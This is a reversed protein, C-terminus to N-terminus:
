VKRITMQEILRLASPGTVVPLRGGQLSGVMGDRIITRWQGLDLGSRPALAIAMTRMFNM